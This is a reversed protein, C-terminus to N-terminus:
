FLEENPEQKSKKWGLLQAIEITLQPMDFTTKLHSALEM